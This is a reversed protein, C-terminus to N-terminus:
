TEMIRVLRELELPQFEVKRTNFSNALHNSNIIVVGNLEAITPAFTDSAFALIPTVTRKWGKKELEQRVAKAEKLAQAIPPRSPLQGDVLLHGDEITVAGRWFKTEVAFIGAPGVVVHDVHLREAQFDNFVHYDPPLGTLISSVREEGRAGKFFREVHRLGKSLSWGCYLLAVVFLTSGWIASDLIAVTLSSGAAFVGLFLPWLGTVVGKVRAWEGPVGHVQAM